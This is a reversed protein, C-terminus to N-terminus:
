YICLLSLVFGCLALENWLEELRIAANHWQVAVVQKDSNPM